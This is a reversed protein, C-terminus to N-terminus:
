CLFSIRLDRSLFALAQMAAQIDRESAQGSSASLGPILSLCLWARHERGARPLQDAGQFVSASM